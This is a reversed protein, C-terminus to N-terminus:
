SIYENKDRVYIDTSHCLELATEQLLLKFVRGTLRLEQLKKSRAGTGEVLKITKM